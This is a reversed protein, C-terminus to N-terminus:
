GAHAAVAASMVAASASVGLVSSNDSKKRPSFSTGIIGIPKLVPKQGEGRSYTSSSAAPTQAGETTSPEAGSFSKNEPAVKKKPAPSTETKREEGAM